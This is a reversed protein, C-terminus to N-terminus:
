MEYMYKRFDAKAKELDTELLYSGNVMTPKSYETAPVMVSITNNLYEEKHALLEPLLNMYKGVDVNTTVQELILDITKSMESTGQKSVKNFLSMLIDRQRRTRDFDGGTGAMREKVHAAAQEGTLTVKGYNTVKKTQKGSFGYFMDVYENIWKMEDKTITVDVGGLENIINYMGSINITVYENLNLDFTQNITKLALEEKGRAFAHNIKYRQLGEIDAATDRPISILKLTKKNQNISIIIQCDSTGEYTADMDKSDSGFLIFNIINDYENKTVSESLENYMNDNIAINNKDIDKFHIKAIKSWVLYGIGGGIVILIIVLIIVIKMWLKMKKSSKEKKSKEQMRKGTNKKINEEEM